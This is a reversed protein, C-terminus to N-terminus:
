KESKMSILKVREARRTMIQQTIDQRKSRIAGRHVLTIASVIAVLLIVAAIEFALIYDTYLVMGLKETNSTANEPPVLEDQTSLDMLQSSVSLPKEQIQVSNKFLDKPIAVMLLGTLLAVIILGFPLYKILHSKMSEIDINLMMVVFLFLTMVAGVYVLILILALFEAEALIWLVASTFFTLVLFLVCRVPNNQSIVMVASLVTLLAFIYFIAQIVWEHM